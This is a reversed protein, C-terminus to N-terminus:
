ASLKRSLVQRVFVPSIFALNGVLMILGFTMMGMCIGIGLHLPIAILLIIPRTMKPWVLGIYAVEWAVTVLTILSVLWMHNALWTMDLTQYEYSALSYWIAQGNWWTEGQVKGLGAFLYVICMHCQMLRIAINTSVTSTPLSHIAGRGQERVNSKKRSSWWRDISFAGGSNGIALYLCLFGMIQDLGFQAGTARNAYSIVLMATLIATARTFMGLTFMGVVVLGLVHAIWVSASSHLLDFHSWAFHQGEFALSRFNRPLIGGDGFFTLLETSWSLHTYFVICGTLIRILALTHPAESRFWFGEWADAWQQSWAVLGNMSGKASGKASSNPPLSSM